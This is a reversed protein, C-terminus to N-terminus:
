ARRAADPFVLQRRLLWTAQFSAAIAVLKALRPDLGAMDGVGVILATLALGALASGLFLAKQVSRDRADRAVDNAFVARSSLLWHAGIGAGYGLASAPAAAVGGELLALFVLMDVGLAGASAAIYRVYTRAAFLSTIRELM